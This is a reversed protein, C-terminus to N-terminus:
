ASVTFKGAANPCSEQQLLQWGFALFLCLALLDAALVVIPIGAVTPQQFLEPATVNAAFWRQDAMRVFILPLFPGFMSSIFVAVRRRNGLSRFAILIPPLVLGTVIAVLPWRYVTGTLVRSAM